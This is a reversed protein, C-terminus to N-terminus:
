GLEGRRHARHGRIIVFITAACILLGTAFFSLALAFSPPAVQVTCPASWSAVAGPQAVGVRYSYVGAGRGSVTSALESGEYLTKEGGHPSQEVLRFTAGDPGQWAIRFAGTDSGGPCQVSLEGM